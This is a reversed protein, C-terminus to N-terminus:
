AAAHGKTQSEVVPWHAPSHAGPASAHTPWLEFCQPAFPTKPAGVAQAFTQLAAVPRQSPTQTGFACRQLPLAVSVQPASPCHPGSTVHGKLHSVVVPCHMAQTSSGVDVVHAAPLHPAVNFLQMCVTCHGAVHAPM